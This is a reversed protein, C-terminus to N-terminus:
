PLQRERLSYLLKLAFLFSLIFFPILRRWNKKFQGFCFEYFLLIIPLIILKESFLFTIIFFLLSLFYFKIERKQNFLIYFLFTLFGWFAGHSYSIGSIWTVSEVLIPHVAFIAATILPIFGTFFFSLILYVLWTSGLHSFINSLRYFIPQLGFIKHILFITLSQFHLGFPPKFFYSIKDIEQNDKIGAIDDSVFDNGLSNSYVALVLFALFAFIKWNKIFYNKFNFNNKVPLYDKAQNVLRNQKILKQYKERPWNKKAFNLIDQSTLKLDTAIKELPFKNLNKKLYKKQSHTLKM